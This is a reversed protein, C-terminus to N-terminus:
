AYTSIFGGVPPAGHRRVYSPGKNGHEPYHANACKCEHADSHSEIVLQVATLLLLLQILNVLGDIRQVFLVTDETFLDRIKLVAEVKMFTQQGPRYLLPCICRHLLTRKTM